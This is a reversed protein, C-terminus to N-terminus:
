IKCEIRRNDGETKAIVCGIESFVESFKSNNEGLYVFVTGHAPSDNKNHPGWFPIRGQVFCLSADWLRAFWKTDTANNICIIIEDASGSKYERFAKDIWDGIVQRGYPPNLFVRGLWQEALGSRGQALSYYVHANVVSNAESCSAPDLDIEGLVERAMEVYKEPTYWDPPGDVGVTVSRQDEELEQPEPKWDDKLIGDIESTSFGALTLDIEDKLDDLELGLMETDWGSNSAIRNDALIYARKKTETMGELQIVPVEDLGLKQAALLRGHGAIIGNNGDVLIPNTWGFERISAAIQAVQEDSHTRANRAYPVLDQTSALEIEVTGAM